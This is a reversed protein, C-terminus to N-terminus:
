IFYLDDEKVAKVFKELHQKARSGLKGSKMAEEIYNTDKNADKKIALGSPTTM